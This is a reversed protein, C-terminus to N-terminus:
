TLNVWEEKYWNKVFFNIVEQIDEQPTSAGGTVAIKEYSLMKEEYQKLDELSEGYFCTKGNKIGVEFLEKTNNSEKGWIVVLSEFYEANDIIVSQREYTAKCVDSSIPIKANPFHDKIHDLTEQVMAFNLTTQTLVAFATEKKLAPLEDKQFVQVHAGKSQIYQIINRGEQHDEKGIYVFDTIGDKLYWEAEKYIKTVFPCELNYVKKFKSEAELIVNRDTGHASFAVIADPEEINEISEIFNVGLNEFNRTVKPNHVLAHICYIKEWPHKKLIEYLGIISKEVGFCFSSPKLYYVTKMHQSDPLFITNRGLIYIFVRSFDIM